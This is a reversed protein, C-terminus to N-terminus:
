NSASNILAKEEVEWNSQNDQRVTPISNGSSGEETFLAPLTGTTTSLRATKHAANFYALMVCKECRTITHFVSTHIRIHVKSKNQITKKKKGQDLNIRILAFVVTFSCGM